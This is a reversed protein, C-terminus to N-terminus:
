SNILSIIKKTIIQTYKKSDSEVLIRIIPETGSARVLYRGKGAIKEDIEDFCLNNLLAKDGGINTQLQFFPKYLKKIESSNLSLARMAELIRLSSLIGDGTNVISPTIIHGSQEAGLVYGFKDMAEQINKDGVAVRVANIGLKKLSKEMGMNSMITIVIDKVKFYQALVFIMNDGDLIEGNNAKAIVRDGDGDYSFCIDYNAFQIINDLDTAGCNVNIFEGRYDDCISDVHCGLKEFIAKALKSTAGYGCDLLVKSGKINPKLSLIYNLYDQRGDIVKAKGPTDSPSISYMNIYLELISEDNISLKRGFNDVVKLGNYCPPNHSASVIVGFMDNNKAYYCVEPTPVVGLRVVDVGVIILGEVISNEIEASSIRTDCGIVVKKAGFRKLANSFRSLFGDKFFWDGERRIGDTGFYEM